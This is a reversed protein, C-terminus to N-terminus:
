FKWAPDLWYRLGGLLMFAILLWAIWARSGPERKVIDLKPAPQDAEPPSADESALIAEIEETTLPRDPDGM